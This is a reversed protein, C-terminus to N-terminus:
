TGRNPRRAPPAKEVPVGDRTVVSAESEKAIDDLRRQLAEKKAVRKRYESVLLAILAIVVAGGALYAAINTLEDM